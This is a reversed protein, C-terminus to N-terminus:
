RLALREMIARSCVFIDNLTLRLYRFHNLWMMNPFLPTFSKLHCVSVRMYHCEGHVRYTWPTGPPRSPRASFDDSGSYCFLLCMLSSSCILPQIELPTRQSICVMHLEVTLWAISWMFCREIGIHHLNLSLQRTHSYQICGHAKSVLNDELRSDGKDGKQGDMGQSLCLPSKFRKATPQEVIHICRQHFPKNSQIGTQRSVGPGSLGM